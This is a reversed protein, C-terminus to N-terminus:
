GKDQGVPDQFAFSDVVSAGLCDGNRVKCIVKGSEMGLEGFGDGLDRVNVTSGSRDVETMFDSPLKAM